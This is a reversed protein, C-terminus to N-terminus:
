NDLLQQIDTDIYTESINARSIKDTSPTNELPGSLDLSLDELEKEFMAVYNKIKSPTGVSATTSQARNTQGDHLQEKNQLPAAARSTPKIRKGDSTDSEIDDEDIIVRRKNTESTAPSSLMTFGATQKDRSATTATATTTATTANTATASAAAESEARKRRKREMIEQFSLVKPLEREKSADKATAKAKPKTAKKSADRKNEPQPIIQILPEQEPELAESLLPTTPKKSQDLDSKHEAEASPTVIHTPKIIEASSLSRKINNGTIDEIDLSETVTGDVHASTSPNVSYSPKSDSTKEDATDMVFDSAYCVRSAPSNSQSRATITNSYNHTAPELNNLQMDMYQMDDIARSSASSTNVSKEPEAAIDSYQSTNVCQKAKRGHKGYKSPVPSQKDESIGLIDYITPIPALEAAEQKINQQIFPTGTASDKRPTKSGPTTDIDMGDSSEDASVAFIGHSFASKNTHPHQPTTNAAQTSSSKGTNSDKSASPTWEMNGFPKFATSGKSQQPQQQVLPKSQQKAKPMFVKAGANLANNAASVANWSPRFAPRVPPQEALIQATNQTGGRPKTHKFICNPRTCVGGNEENRCPVEGPPKTTTRAAVKDVHKMGCDEEPCEGSQVFAPCVQQSERAGASHRFPCADGNRCSSTMFFHCDVKAPAM